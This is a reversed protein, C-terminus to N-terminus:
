PLVNVINVKRAMMPVLSLRAPQSFTTIRNKRERKKKEIREEGAEKKPHYSKCCGIAQKHSAYM